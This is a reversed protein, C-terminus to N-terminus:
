AVDRLYNCKEYRTANCGSIHFLKKRHRGFLRKRVVILKKEVRCVGPRNTDECFIEIGQAPKAFGVNLVGDYEEARCPDVAALAGFPSQQAEL